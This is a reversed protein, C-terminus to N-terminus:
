SNWTGMKTSVWWGGATRGFCSSCRVNVKTVSPRSDATALRGAGGTVPRDHDDAADGNGPVHETRAQGVFEADVHHRDQEAGTTAEELVDVKLTDM